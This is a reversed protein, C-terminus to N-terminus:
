QPRGDDPRLRRVLSRWLSWGRSIRSGSRSDGVSPEAQSRVKIAELAGRLASILDAYEQPRAAPNKAMMLHVLACLGPDLGPMVASLPAPTDDLHRRMMESRDAAEFPLRGALAHYLTVGLSYIDSRHDVPGGCVQEPAMYAPTGVAFPRGAGAASETDGEFAALGLDALKVNGDRALLINGPKVDRHIVGHGLAFGLGEAVALAVRVARDPRVAGSGNILEGLDLGDMYELILYPHRAEDDFDLVRVIHPHSLRALMRAEAAMLERIRRDRQPDAPTLVKVAVQVNLSRHLARFVVSSGGEGVKETLICRGLVTGVRPLSDAPLAAPNPASPPVPGTASASAFGSGTAFGSRTLATTPEGRMLARRVAALEEAFRGATPPRDDPNKAMARDILAVCAEPISPDISRPDPHPDAVQRYILAAPGTGAFPPRGTLLAFLTAGLSYVDSRADVTGGRCQEPSMFHPTGLWRGPETLGSLMDDAAKAMGFDTVRVEGNDGLLINGPKVDRHVIGLAHAAELGRAALEAVRVAEAAPLTGREDLAEQASRGIVLPMAFFVLGQEKGITYVGVCNPHDLKAAARAELLFRRVAVDGAGVLEPSLVKVAVRRALLEDEAEYVVGKAGRGVRRLIKYQGLVRGPLSDTEGPAADSGRLLPGALGDNSSGDPRPASVGPGATAPTPPAAPGRVRAIAESLRRRVAGLGGDGFLGNGDALQVYGKAALRITRAAPEALVGERVLFESFGEGPRRGVRWWDAVAAADPLGEGADDTLM